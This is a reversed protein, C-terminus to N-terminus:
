RKIVKQKAINALIGMGALTLVLSSGGYSIFPLPVGTLPVLAVMASLNVLAQFGIWSTIGVALLKGFDDPAEKAIKMGRWLLILFILLIAVAGVFGLEEAIVAFISDTTVAPLYEYKQRSQGLGVGFWGGSGIAILIQRIHYSAGLPDHAPNLFTTLRERRYPSLFVLAIGSLIGVVGILFLSLLSGGSVFYVVLSTSALIVATGLDPELMILGLLIGLIILFPWLKRKNSLFTALYIIFSLKTLEAPQFNIPGFSLWRRAGLVKLGVGPILVIILFFLSFIMLTIAFKEWRHYDFFSLFFFILFGLFAWIAQLRFYYFKDGFDRYAELVSANGVMIVGFITLGLVLFILLWDPQYFSSRLPVKTKYRRLM